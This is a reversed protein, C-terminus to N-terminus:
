VGLQPRVRLGRDASRPEGPAASCRDHRGGVTGAGNRDRPSPPHTSPRPPAGTPRVDLAMLETSSARAEPSGPCFASTPAGVEAPEAGAGVLPLGVLADRPM